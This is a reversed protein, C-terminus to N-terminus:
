VNVDPAPPFGRPVDPNSLWAIGEPESTFVDALLGRNRAVTVGFKCPDIMEPRAIVALCIGPCIAAWEVAMLFRQTTSPPPFGTLGTTDVLLRHIRRSAAQALGESVIAVAQDFTYEGAPRFVAYGEFQFHSEPNMVPNLLSVFWTFRAEGSLGLSNAM